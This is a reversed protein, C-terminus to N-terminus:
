SVSRRMASVGTSTTRMTEFSITQASTTKTTAPIVPIGADQMARATGGSSVLEFGLEHLGRAFEALGSKDHVSLLARKVPLM